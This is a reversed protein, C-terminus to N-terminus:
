KKIEKLQAEQKVLENLVDNYIEEMQGSFDYYFELNDEFDEKTIQYKGFLNAYQVEITSTSDKDRFFGKAHAAEILQMEVLLSTFDQKSILNEPEKRINQESGCAIFLSCCFLILYVRRM